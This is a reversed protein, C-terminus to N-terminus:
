KFRFNLGLNAFANDQRFDSESLNLSYGIQFQLKIKELGGRITLAPEVLFNSNNEELFAIQDEGEFILNGEVNNYLLNLIRASGAIELNKSKYGINPQIGFRVINADLSGGRLTTPNLSFDNEVSGFGILGYTEFIMNNGISNHYGIGAGVFRGSGTGNETEQELFMGGNAIIAINSGAGYAGQFEVLNGNGSLTLNTEGSESILPVNQTNPSYYKPSCSAFFLSGSLIIFVLNKM